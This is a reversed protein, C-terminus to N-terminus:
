AAVDPLSDTYKYTVTGDITLTEDINNYLYDKGEMRKVKFNTFKITLFEKEKFDVVVASGTADKGSYFGYRQYGNEGWDEYFGYEAHGGGKVVDECTVIDLGKTISCNPYMSIDLSFCDPFILQMEDKEKRSFKTFVMAYGNHEDSNFNGYFLPPNETSSQWAVGNITLTAGSGGQGENGENDDDSGCAAFSVAAVMMALTMVTSYFYKKM